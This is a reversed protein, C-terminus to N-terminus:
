GLKAHTTTSTTHHPTTHHSTTHHPHPRPRILTSNHNTRPSLARIYIIKINLSPKPGKYIYFNIIKIIKNMDTSTGYM